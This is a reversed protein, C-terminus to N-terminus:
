NIARCDFSKQEHEPVQFYKKQPGFPLFLDLFEGYDVTQM